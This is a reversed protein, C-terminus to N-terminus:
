RFNSSKIKRRFETPTITTLRKFRNSFSQVSEFGVRQCVQTISLDMTLLEKAKEMRKSIIYQHPTTGYAEKFLRVLHYKSLYVENAIQDLDLAEYYRRDILIKADKVRKYLYVKPYMVSSVLSCKKRTTTKTWCIVANVSLNLNQSVENAVLCLRQRFWGLIM